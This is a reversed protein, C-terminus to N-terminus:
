RQYNEYKIRNWLIDLLTGYSLSRRDDLLVWFPDRNLGAKHTTIFMKDYLVSRTCMENMKMLDKKINKM